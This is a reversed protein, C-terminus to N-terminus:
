PGTELKPLKVAPRKGVTSSDASSSPFLATCSKQAIGTAM